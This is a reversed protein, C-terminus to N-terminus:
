PTGRQGIPRAPVGAMKAGVPVDRTVVAGAGIVAGDGITVGKLIIVGAGIWVERGIWVPSGILPQEGVPKNAMHGHDHDTIYCHPGIMSNRGIEIRESADIMTFRNIYTEARIILRNRQPSGICFLVVGDDLAVGREITIDSWQRPISIKRMWVYGGLRVGLMRFWVNRARSAMGGTSRIVLGLLNM